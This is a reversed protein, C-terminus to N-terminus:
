RLPYNDGGACYTTDIQCLYNLIQGDIATSNNDQAVQAGLMLKYDNISGMGIPTHAGAAKALQQLHYLQDTQAMAVSSFSGILLAFITMMIIKM